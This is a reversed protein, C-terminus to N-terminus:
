TLSLRDALLRAVIDSGEDTLHARDVYLWQDPKTADALVPNLDVFPMSRKACAARLVEAYRRGVEPTTIVGRLDQFAGLRAMDDYEDFLAQEQPAARDRVWTAVPQLVFSVRAGGALRCWNDLDRCTWAAAQAILREPDATTAPSDQDPTPAPPDTKHSRKARGKKQERRRRLLEETQDLYEGCYFFAGHDGQMRPPLGTLVLNNFGTLLVIEEIEPLLERHLLLLLVEQLSNYSRGGFNLWPVSPAHRSWLRSALTAHDNTAGVGFVISSGVLLRVPRDPIRGGTSASEDVGHSIRFGLRDTNLVESHYNARHFYMLYPLYRVQARDDFDDYQRMQPTLVYRQVTM